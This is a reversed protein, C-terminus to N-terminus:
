ESRAGGLAASPANRGSGSDCIRLNRRFRRARRRNEGSTSSVKDEERMRASPPIRRPLRGPEAQEPSVVPGSPGATGARWHSYPSAVQAAALCRRAQLCSL